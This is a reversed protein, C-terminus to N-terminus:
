QIKPTLKGRENSDRRQWLLCADSNPCRKGQVLIRLVGDELPTVLCTAQIIAGVLPNYEHGFWGM